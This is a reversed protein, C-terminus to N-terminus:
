SRFDVHIVNEEKLSLTSLDGELDALPNTQINFAEGNFVVEFGRLYHDLIRVTEKFFNLAGDYAILQSELGSV